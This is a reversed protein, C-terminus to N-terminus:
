IFMALRKSMDLPFNAGKRNTMIAKMEEFISSALGSFSFKPFSYKGKGNNSYDKFM